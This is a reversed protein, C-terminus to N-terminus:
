QSSPELKLVTRFRVRAEFKLKEARGKMRIMGKQRSEVVKGAEVAFRVEGSHDIEFRELGAAKVPDELRMGGETRLAAVPAAPEEEEILGLFEGAGTSVFRGKGAQREIEWKEGPLVGAEPLVPFSVGLAKLAMGLLGSLGRNSGLREVDGAPSRLLLAEMVPPVTEVPVAMGNVLPPEFEYRVRTLRRGDEAIREIREEIRGSIRIVMLQPMGGLAIRGRLTQELSYSRTEGEAGGYALM